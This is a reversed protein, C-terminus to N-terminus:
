GNAAQIALLAISVDGRFVVVLHETLLGGLKPRLQVIRGNQWLMDIAVAAADVPSLRNVAFTQTGDALTRQFFAYGGAALTQFHLLARGKSRHNGM